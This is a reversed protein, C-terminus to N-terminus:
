LSITGPELRLEDSPAEHEVDEPESPLPLLSDLAVSTADLVASRVFIPVQHGLALAIADSTRSDLEHRQDDHALVVVSYFVNDEFREVRVSEISGGLEKLLADMLDHTLPRHFREGALRLQISLGETEGVYVPLARKGARLVIAHGRETPAVGAVSAREFGEPTAAETSHPKPLPPAARPAPPTLSPDCAPLTERDTGSPESSASRQCSGFVLSLTCAGLASLRRLHPRVFAGATRQLSPGPGRPRPSAFRQLSVPPPM